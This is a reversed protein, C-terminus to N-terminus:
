FEVEEANFVPGETCVRANNVHSHADENKTKVMCGLCAGVGCAMREELSIYAPIFREEAYRKVAKLMVLPGCAYILDANLDREKLADMVTGRIGISGDDTSLILKVERSFEENLFLGAKMSRYGMVATISDKGIGTRRLASALSLLPPAGIGGGILLIHKKDQAEELPFGNGVPGMLDFSEGPEAKALESTGYGVTRYVLRLTREERDTGCISIPRKLLRSDSHTGVMIFQGPASTLAIDTKFVTSYVGEALKENTIIKAKDQIMYKYYCFFLSDAMVKVSLKM